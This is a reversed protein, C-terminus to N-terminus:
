RRFVRARGAGAPDAITPTLALEAAGVLTADAGLGSAAITVRSWPAALAQARAARTVSAELFGFFRHYLGGLVVVEPNFLNILNGIGIGLWKGVEAMATLVAKEGAAAGASLADLSALGTPAVGAGAHRLLAAEGAETEWCGTAGCGCRRGVPNILTHGAEGAYGAAGLLPEGDIIVGAGIGVEGSIYILNRVGPRVGRRYEAVAGLDAENAVV